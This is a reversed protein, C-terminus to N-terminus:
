LENGTGYPFVVKCKCKCKTTMDGRPQSLEESKGQKQQGQCNPPNSTLHKTSQGEM